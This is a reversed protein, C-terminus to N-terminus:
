DYIPIQLVQGVYILNDDLNNAKKIDFIVSRINLNENEKCINNAINWLTQSEKVTCTQFKTKEKCFNKNLFISIILIMVLIIIINKFKLFGKKSNRRKELNKNMNKM